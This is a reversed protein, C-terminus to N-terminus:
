VSISWSPGNFSYGDEFGWYHILPLNLLFHRFDNNEVVVPHGLMATLPWQLAICALLTALHLPYLRSLRLMAFSAPGVTRERVKQAYLWYFIFGSLCFFFTVARAGKDYFPSFLWYLPSAETPAAFRDQWLFHQWHQLVVALAAIARAADLSYLRVGKTGSSQTV